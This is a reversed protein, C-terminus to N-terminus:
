GPRGGSQRLGRVFRLANRSLTGSTHASWGIRGGESFWRQEVYRIQYLLPFYGALILAVEVREGLWQDGSRSVGHANLVHHAVGHAAVLQARVPDTMISPAIFIERPTSASAAVTFVMEGPSIVASWQQSGFVSVGRAYPRDPHFGVHVLLKETFGFRDAALAVAAEADRVPDGNLASPTDIEPAELVAPDLVAAIDRAMGSLRPGDNLASFARAERRRGLFLKWERLGFVCLFACLLLM